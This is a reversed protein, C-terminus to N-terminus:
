SVSGLPSLVQYHGSGGRVYSLCGLLVSRTTESQWALLARSYTAAPSASSRLARAPKPLPSGQYCPAGGPLPPKRTHLSPELGTEM